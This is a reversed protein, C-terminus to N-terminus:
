ASSSRVMTYDPTAACRPPRRRRRHEHPDAHTDRGRDGCDLALDRRQISIEARPTLDHAPCLRACSSRKMTRSTGHRTPM